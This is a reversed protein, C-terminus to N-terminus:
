GWFRRLSYADRVRGFLPPWDQLSAGFGVAVVSLLRYICDIIMRLLGGIALISGIRTALRQLTTDLALFKTELLQVKQDASLGLYIHWLFDITFYQWILIAATRLLYDRRSGHSESASFSPFSPINKAQWRTGVGRTDMTIRLSSYITTVLHFGELRKAGLLDNIDAQVILLLNIFFITLLLNVAHLLGVMRTLAFPTNTTVNELHTLHIFQGCSMLVLCLVGIRRYISQKETTAILAAAFLSRLLTLLLPILVPFPDLMVKLVVLSLDFM